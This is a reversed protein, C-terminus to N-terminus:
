YIFTLYSSVMWVMIYSFGAIWMTSTVFSVMFWREWRPKACNPITFFLLLCLPWCLLWKM